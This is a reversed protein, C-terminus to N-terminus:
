SPLLHQQQGGEFSQKWKIKLQSIWIMSRMEEIVAEEAVKEVWFYVFSVIIPSNQYNIFVM